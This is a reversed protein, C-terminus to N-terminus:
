FRYLKLDSDRSINVLRSASPLGMMLGDSGDLYMNLVMLDPPLPVMRGVM